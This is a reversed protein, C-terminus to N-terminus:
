KPPPKSNRSNLIEMQLAQHNLANVFALASAMVVDIHTGQGHSVLEKEAIKVSARAQADAGGTLATLGYDELTVSDNDTAQRIAEIVANVPGNGTAESTHQQGNYAVTAKAWPETETGGKFEINILEYRSRINYTDEAVLAHLDEDYINKKKDALVKFREFVAALQTTSLRYGLTILRDQLAYRGSHKGLIIKSETVGVDAPRMIEYTRPDSLMGHQHIGAEHAFANRGVIPKTAPVPMGTIESVIRSVAAIEQTKIGTNCGFLDKRVKIAMVIEELSANGAREGIGNVCCEVQRAGTAIAALSNAVALGLDNHCHTSIIVEKDGVVQSIEGVITTYESPMTYGVTDPINLVTAGADIACAFAEKLFGIDSRTADEASFEVSDCFSRCLGVGRRIEELVQERTLKLKYKMHLESTAIFVHLRPRAAAKVGEWAALIDQERTRCLGAVQSKEVVAAIQKVSAIEGRSAAPFGAEIVDVGLDELRRALRLKEELTMSCGPSQEGDRLTTDFIYVYGDTIM